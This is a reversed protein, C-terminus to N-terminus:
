RSRDAGTTLPKDDPRRNTSVTLKREAVAIAMAEGPRSTTGPTVTPTDREWLEEDLALEISLWLEYGSEAHM